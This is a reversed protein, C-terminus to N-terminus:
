KRASKAVRENLVQQLHSEAEALDPAGWVAIELMKIGRNRKGSLVAQLRGESTYDGGILTDAKNVYPLRALSNDTVVAHFVYLPFKNDRFLYERFPIQFGGVDFVQTGYTQELTLGMARLCFRPDHGTMALEVATRGPEWRFFFIRWRLGERDMWSESFAIDPRLLTDLTVKPITVEQIGNAPSFKKFTWNNRIDSAKLDHMGYWIETGGMALLWVVCLAIAGRRFPLARNAIGSSDLPAAPAPAKKRRDSLLWGAGASVAMTGLLITLGAPDHWSEVEHLGSSSAILSLTVTRLANGLLASLFAVVVLLLRRGAGLRFYEGFLLSVMLGSQLSRVGSCAQEVELVGTPLSILNGQQAAEYGMWQLAEVCIAANRHMLIDMLAIEQPSPWPVSVLFFCVPFLFHRLWAMGGALYVAALTIAIGAGAELAGPLRWDANSAVVFQLAAIAVAGGSTTIVALVKGGATPPTAEPRDQWRLYFLAVCLLPVLEGYQYQPNLSWHPWLSRLVLWWGVLFAALFPWFRALVHAMSNESAKVTNV